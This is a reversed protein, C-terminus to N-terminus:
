VDKLYYHKTAKKIYVQHWNELMFSLKNSSVIYTPHVEKINLDHFTGYTSFVSILALSDLM